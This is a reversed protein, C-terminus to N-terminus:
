RQSRAAFRIIRVIGDRDTDAGEAARREIEYDHLDLVLAAFRDPHFIVGDSAIVDALAMLVDRLVPEQFVRGPIPVVTGVAGCLWSFDVNGAQSLRWLGEVPVKVDGGIWRRLQELTIGAADAAATKTPFKTVVEAIREGLRRRFGTVDDQMDM